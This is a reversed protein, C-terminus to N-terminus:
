VPVPLHVQSSECGDFCINVTIHCYYAIRYVLYYVVSCGSSICVLESYIWIGCCMCLLLGLLQIVLMTCYLISSTEQDADLSVKLSVHCFTLLFMFDHCTERSLM